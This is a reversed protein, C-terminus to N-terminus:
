SGMYELGTQALGVLGINQANLATDAALQVLQGISTGSGLMDVFPQAQEISPASGVVNTWLLNVVDKPASKGAASMALAALDLYSMGQDTYQLGIAVFQKNAVAAPGFVAGLLKAVTGAGGALDIAVNVDSFKLREIETLTDRGEASSSDTVTTTASSAAIKFNARPGAFVAVDIGTGGKLTDDGGNGTIRDNGAAGTITDAFRTGRLTDDAATGAITLGSTPETTTIRIDDSVALRAPDTATVRLNFDPGDLPPTGSFKRTLADFSLWSPLASGDVLSASIALPNSDLDNFSTYPVTWTQSSGESWSLDPLATLVVPARNPPSADRDEFLVAGVHDYLGTFPFWSANLYFSGSYPARWGGISDQNIVLGGAVTQAPDDGEDNALIANGDRDYVRLSDPDLFSISQILYTAGQVAEFKFLPLKASATDDSRFVAQFEAGSASASAAAPEWKLLRADARQAATLDPLFDLTLYSTAM